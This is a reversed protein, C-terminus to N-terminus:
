RRTRGAGIKPSGICMGKSAGGNEGEDVQPSPRQSPSKGMDDEGPKRRGRKPKIHPLLARLAMDDEALVGERELEAIPVNEDPIETWYPSGRDMLYEFFADVHMSKMWRKLRAAYQQIKQGRRFCIRFVLNPPRHGVIVKWKGLVTAQGDRGVGNAM